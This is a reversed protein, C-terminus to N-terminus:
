LFGFFAVTCLQLMELCLEALILIRDNVWGRWEMGILSEKHYVNKEYFPM